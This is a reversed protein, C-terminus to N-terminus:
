SKYYNSIDCSLYCVDPISFILEVGKMTVDKNKNLGNYYFNNTMNDSEYVVDFYLEKLHDNLNIVKNSRTTSLEFEFENDSSNNWM